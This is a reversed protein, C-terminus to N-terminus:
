NEEINKQFSHVSYYTHLIIIIIIVLLNYTM